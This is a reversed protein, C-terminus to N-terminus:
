YDQCAVRLAALGAEGLGNRLKLAIELCARYMSEAKRSDTDYGLSSAWDEFTSEDLVSSEMILSSIVDCSDPQLLPLKRPFAMHMLHDPVGKHNKGTECELILREELNITVPGQKYSPCHGIGAGYDTTLIDRGGRVVTVKWNLSYDNLKPSPKANRSQSWPVFESRITVGLSEMAQTILDRATPASETDTM